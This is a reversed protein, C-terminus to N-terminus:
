AQTDIHKHTHAFAVTFSSCHSLFLFLCISLSLTLPTHPSFELWSSVKSPFDDHPSSSPYKRMQPYCNFLYGNTKKCLVSTEQFHFHPSPALMHVPTCRYVWVSNSYTDTHSPQQVCGQRLSHNMHLDDLGPCPSHSHTNNANSPSSTVLPMACMNVCEVFLCLCWSWLRYIVKVQVLYQM